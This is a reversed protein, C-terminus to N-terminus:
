ECKSGEMTHMIKHLQLSVEGLRVNTQVLVTALNMLCGEVSKGEEFFNDAVTAFIKQTSEDTATRYASDTQNKKAKM